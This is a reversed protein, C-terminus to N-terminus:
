GVVARAVMDVVKPGSEVVEHLLLVIAAGQFIFGEAETRFGILFVIAGIDNGFRSGRDDEAFKWWVPGRNFDDGSRDFSDVLGPQGNPNGAARRGM